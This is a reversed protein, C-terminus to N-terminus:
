RGKAGGHELLAGIAEEIQWVPLAIEPEHGEDDLDLLPLLVQQARGGVDITGSADLGDGSGRVWSKVLQHRFKSSEGVHGNEEICREVVVGLRDDVRCCVGHDTEEGGTQVSEDDTLEQDM